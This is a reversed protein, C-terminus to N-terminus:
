GNPYLVAFKSRVKAAAESQELLLLMAQGADGCLELDVRAGPKLDSIQAQLWLPMSQDMLKVASIFPQTSKAVPVTFHVAESKSPRHLRVIFPVRLHKAQKRVIAQVANYTLPTAKPHGTADWWGLTFFARMCADVQAAAEQSLNRFERPKKM